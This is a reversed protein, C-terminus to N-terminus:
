WISHPGHKSALPCTRGSTSYKQYRRVCSATTPEHCKSGRIYLYADHELHPPTVKLESM